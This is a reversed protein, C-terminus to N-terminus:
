RCPTLSPDVPLAPQPDGCHLELGQLNFQTLFPALLFLGLGGYALLLASASAGSTGMVYLVACTLLWLWGFRSPLIYLNRLNLRLETSRRARILHDPWPDWRQREASPM